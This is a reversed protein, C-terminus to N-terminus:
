REDFNMGISFDNIKDRLPQCSTVFPVHKTMKLWLFWSLYMFYKRIKTGVRNTNNLQEAGFFAAPWDPM